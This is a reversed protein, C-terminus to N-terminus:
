VFVHSVQAICCDFCMVIIYIYIHHAYVPNYVSDLRAPPLHTQVFLDRFLLCSLVCAVVVILMRWKGDGWIMATYVIEMFSFGCQLSSVCGMKPVPFDDEFHGNGPAINNGPYYQWCPATGLEQSWRATGLILSKHCYLSIKKKLLLASLIWQTPRSLFVFEFAQHCVKLFWGGVKLFWGGIKLFM